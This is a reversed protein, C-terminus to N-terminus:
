SMVEEEFESDLTTKEQPSCSKTGEGGVMAEVELGAMMGRELNKRDRVGGVVVELV